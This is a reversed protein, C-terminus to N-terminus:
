SRGTPSRAAPFRRNNFSAHIRPVLVTARM